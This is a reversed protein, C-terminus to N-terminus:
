VLQPKLLQFLSSNTHEYTKDTIRHYFASCMAFVSLWGKSSGKVIFAVYEQNQKREM